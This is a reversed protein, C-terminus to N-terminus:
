VERIIVSSPSAFVTIGRLAGGLEGLSGAPKSNATSLPPHGVDGLSQCAFGGLNPGTIPPPFARHDIQM